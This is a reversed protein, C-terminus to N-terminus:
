SSKLDFNYGDAKGKEVTATLETTNPDTYKPPVTESAQGNMKLQELDMGEKPNPTVGNATVIRSVTVKYTGPVTGKQDGTQVEYRGQSDTHGGSGYFGQPLIGQYAFGVVADALPKGDLTVTGSVPVLDLAPTKKGKGCGIALASCVM